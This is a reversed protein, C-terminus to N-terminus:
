WRALTPSARGQAELLRRAQCRIRRWGVNHATITGWVAAKATILRAAKANAAVIKMRPPQEPLRRPTRRAAPRLARCRPAPGARPRHREARRAPTRPPRADAGTNGIPSGRAASTPKRRSRLWCSVVFGDGRGLAEDLEMGAMLVHRVGIVQDADAVVLPDGVDPTVLLHGLLRERGEVLQQPAKRVALVGAVGLQLRIQRAIM